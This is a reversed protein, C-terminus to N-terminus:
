QTLDMKDGPDRIKGDRLGRFQGAEAKHLDQRDKQYKSHDEETIKYPKPASKAAGRV